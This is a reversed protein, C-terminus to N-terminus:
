ATVTLIGENLRWQARASEVRLPRKVEVVTDLAFVPTDLIIRRAELDLTSNKM